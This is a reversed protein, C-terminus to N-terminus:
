ILFFHKSKLIMCSKCISEGVRLIETFVESKVMFWDGSDADNSLSRCAGNRYFVFTTVFTINASIRIGVRTVDSFRNIDPSIHFLMAHKGHKAQRLRCLSFKIDIVRRSVAEFVRPFFALIWLSSETSCRHCLCHSGPTSCSTFPVTTLPMSWTTRYGCYHRITLRAATAQLQGESTHCIHQSTWGSRKPDQKM